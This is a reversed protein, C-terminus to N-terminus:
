PPPLPLDDDDDPPPLEGLPEDTLAIPAEEIPDADAVGPPAPSPADDEVWSGSPPAVGLQKERKRRVLDGVSLQRGSESTDGSTSPRPSKRPVPSTRPAPTQRAAPTTRGPVPSQRAAGSPKPPIRNTISTKRRPAPTTEQSVVRGSTSRRVPPAAAEEEDADDGIAGAGISKPDTGGLIAAKNLKWWADWKAVSEERVAEGAMDIFDFDLGTIGLLAECAQGRVKTVPDRLARVLVPITAPEAAETLERAAKLRIKADPNALDHAISKASRKEDKPARMGLTIAVVPKAVLLGVLALGAGFGLHWVPSHAADKISLKVIDLVALTEVDAGAMSAGIHFGIICAGAVVFLLAVLYRILRM